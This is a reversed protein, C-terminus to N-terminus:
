GKAVTASLMKKGNLFGELVDGPAIPGIGAPTGTFLLDGPELTIFRSVYAILEAVTFIMHATTDKQVTNGNKKLELSLAQLDTSATMPLEVEGLVASGDWAKAKEWPLGKAKLENQLTRATLDLGVTFSAVLGLAMNVPVDKAYSDIMVVLELEHEIEGAIDPLKVPQGPYLCATTPKLFFIPETPTETGLEKAHDAYNRGICIVKM